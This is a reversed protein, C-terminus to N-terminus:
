LIHWFIRPAARSHAHTACINRECVSVSRQMLSADNLSDRVDFDVNDVENWLCKTRGLIYDLLLLLVFLLLTILMDVAQSPALPMPRLTECRARAQEEDPLRRAPTSVRNNSPM